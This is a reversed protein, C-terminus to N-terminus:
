EFRKYNELGALSFKYIHDTLKKILEVDNKNKVIEKQIMPNIKLFLCQSMISYGMLHLRDFDNIGTIGKVINFLTERYRSKIEAVIDDCIGSSQMSEHLFLQPLYRSEDESYGRKVVTEIFLYLKKEYPIDLNNLKLLPMKEEAIEFAKKFIERYLNAKSQFYYNVSAINVGAKKCIGAVSTKRYGNDAFLELAALIIKERKDM